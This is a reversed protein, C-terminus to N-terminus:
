VFIPTTDSVWHAKRAQWAIGWMMVLDGHHGTARSAEAKGLGNDRFVKCQSLFLKDNVKMEMNSISDNLESLLIPRTLGTTRWGPTQSEKPIDRVDDEMYYVNTYCCQNMITNLVSHGTNNNEVAILAGNYKKAFEVCKFGLTSPRFVVNLRAVQEGTRWDLIGIPSPDSGTTGESTDAAVIYKHGPEPEKWIALGESERIPESCKRLANDIDDVSFYCTGSAIFAEEATSPYEQQFMKEAKRGGRRKERRWALQNINCSFKDVLHAEEDTLTEIIETREAASIQIQNRADMYWGLFLPTWISNGSMAEQWKEYFWGAMGNATSELVMEGRRAAEGLAAILNDTDRDNLAWFAVESGHVRSYKAGRAVGKGGATAISFDTRLLKYALADKRDKDLKAYNPDDQHMRLVMEFIKATDEKTQAVTVCETNRRTRCQTYSIVQEYTTIGMRRAKLTIFRKGTARPTPTAEKMAHYIKQVPNIRFPIVFDDETKIRVFKEAYELESIRMYEPPVWASRIRAMSESPRVFPLSIRSM